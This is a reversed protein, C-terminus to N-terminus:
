LLLILLMFGFSVKYFSSSSKPEPDPEPEPDPDPKPEHDPKPEYSDKGKIEQKIIVEYPYVTSYPIYYPLLYINDYSETIGKGLNLNCTLNYSIGAKSPTDTL